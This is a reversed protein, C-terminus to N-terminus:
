KRSERIERPVREGELFADVDALRVPLEAVAGIHQATFIANRCIALAHERTYRGADALNRSYGMEGARWWAGHENSWVLYTDDDM